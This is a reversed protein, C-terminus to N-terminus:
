AEGILRLGSPTEIVACVSTAAAAVVTLEHEAAFGIQSLLSRVQGPAPHGIRLERLRLGADPLISAPHVKSERQILLPAAGCLPPQGDPTVTMQWTRGERQMTEVSGLEPRADAAIDDSSAVWAALRAAPEPPLADLGFWRPRPLSTADPDIAIVELYVSGGLALLLNHTGMHPHKRGAGPAVGLAAEVLASGAALTHAVVVLHDVRASM